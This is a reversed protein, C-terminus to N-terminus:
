SQIVQLSEWSEDGIWQIREHEDETGHTRYLFKSFIVVKFNITSITMGAKAPIVPAMIDFKRETSYDTVPSATISGGDRKVGSIVGLSGPCSQWLQWHESSGM